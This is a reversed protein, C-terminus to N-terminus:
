LKSPISIDLSTKNEGLATVHYGGVALKLV